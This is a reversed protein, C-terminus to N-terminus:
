STALGKKVSPFTSESQRKEGGTGYVHPVVVIPEKAIIEVASAQIYSGTRAYTLLKLLDVDARTISLNMTYM